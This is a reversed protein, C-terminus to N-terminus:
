VKASLSERVVEMAQPSYTPLVKVGPDIRRTMNTLVEGPGMEVVHTVGSAVFRNITQVWPVPRTLQEVLALKITQEDAKELRSNHLVSFSPARVEMNSLLDALALTAPRMLSSHFPGSVPLVFVMKAGAAKAARRIREIAAVHGAVVIQGPANYNVPELVEGQACRECLDQVVLDELGLVAAMGASGEDVAKSMAQARGRVLRLADALGFAGAATLASIEGVSHGAAWTPQLPCVSRWVRFIAIASAVMVPQTNVTNNLDEAPGREILQWMDTALVDSAEAITEEVVPNGRWTNLMGVSQSGQGPFVYGLKVM